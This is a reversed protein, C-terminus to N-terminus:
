VGHIKCEIRNKGSDKVSYMLNDAEKILEDLNCAKYSTVAGISFTVPWNKDRTVKLLEGQIKEVATRGNIEDTEPFFVAFEDGGLRAAIDIARINGRITAAVTQLLIDGRSHGLTDNVTKFNDIDIYALTFPRKFRAARTIEVGALEYFERSNAIGTLFDTRAFAHERELLYKIETVAFTAMVFFGLRMCSNWLPILSHSYTHGTSLDAYLWTAASFVSIILALHRKGLWAVLTIPLLYFISFSIEYGSIRDIVGLLIVLMVGILPVFAGPIKELHKIARKM